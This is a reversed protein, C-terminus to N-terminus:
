KVFFFANIKDMVGILQDKFLDTEPSYDPANGCTYGSQETASQVLATEFTNETAINM